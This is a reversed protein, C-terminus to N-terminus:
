ARDGLAEVITAADGPGVNHRYRHDVAVVTPYGCGGMCEVARFTIDTILGMAGFTHLVLVIEAGSLTLVRPVEEVTVLRVSRM